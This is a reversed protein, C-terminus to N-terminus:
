RGASPLDHVPRSSPPCYTNLGGPRTPRGTTLCGSLTREAESLRGLGVLMDAVAFASAVVFVHNGLQTLEMSDGIGRIAAELNGSAWHTVELHTTAQARRDFDDEPILQLALEAYKVTAAPDGQVQANYARTLAIM